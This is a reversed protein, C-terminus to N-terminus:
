ESADSYDSAEFFLTATVQKVHKKKKGSKNNDDKGREQSKSRARNAKGKKWCTAEIHNSM